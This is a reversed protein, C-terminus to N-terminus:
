EVVRFLKKPPLEKVLRLRRVGLMLVNYTNKETQQYTAVRCLCATNRLTPRGEQQQEWGPALLGM